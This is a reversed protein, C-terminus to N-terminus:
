KLGPSLAFLSPQCMELCIPFDSLVSGILLCELPIRLRYTFNHLHLLNFKHVDSEPARVYRLHCCVQSHLAFIPQHADAADWPM